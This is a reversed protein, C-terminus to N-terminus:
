RILETWPIDPATSWWQIKPLDSKKIEFHDSSVECNYEASIEGEGNSSKIHIKGQFVNVSLGSNDVKLDFETGITRITGLRTIFRYQNKYEGRHFYHLRGKEIELTKRGSLNLEVGKDIILFTEEGLSLLFQNNLSKLSSSVTLVLRDDNLDEEFDNILIRGDGSLPKLAMEPASWFYIGLFLLCFCAAAIGFSYGFYTKKEIKSVNPKKITQLVRLEIDQNSARADLGSRLHEELLNDLEHKNKPNM